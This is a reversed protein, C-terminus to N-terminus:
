GRNTKYIWVTNGKDSFTGALGFGDFVGAPKKETSDSDFVYNPYTPEATEIVIYSVTHSGIEDHFGEENEPFAVVKRGTMYHLVPYNQSMIASGEPASDRLWLGASKLATDAQSAADAQAIGAFLGSALLLMVFGAAIKRHVSSRIMYSIGLSMVLLFVPYFNLLYRTEKRPLLIFFLLSLLFLLAIWVNEGRRKSLLVALGPLAFVGAMGFIDMWNLFYFHWEGQYYRGDVTGAQVSLLEVPSGYYAQAILLWPLLMLASVALGSIFGKVNFGKRKILLPYALYAVWLLVATYRALFALGMIIGSLIFLSANGTKMARHYTYVFCLLLFIFLTETLVRAEHLLLISSTALLAASILGAEESFLEKAVFYALVVSLVGFIIPLAKAAEESMGALLWVGAIVHPFLPPRFSEVPPEMIYYGGGQYIGRALGLYVAEDWWYGANLNYLYVGEAIAVLVVLLLAFGHNKM